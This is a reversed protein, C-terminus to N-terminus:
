EKIFEENESSNSFLLLKKYGKGQILYVMWLVNNLGELKFFIIINQKM